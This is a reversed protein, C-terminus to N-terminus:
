YVKFAMTELDFEDVNISVGDPYYVEWLQSVARTELMLPRFTSLMLDELTRNHCVNFDLVDTGM